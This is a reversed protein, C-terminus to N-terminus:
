CSQVQSNETIASMANTYLKALSEPIAVHMPEKVLPEDNTFDMECLREVLVYKGM